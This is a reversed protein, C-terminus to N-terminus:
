KLKYKKNSYEVKFKDLLNMLEEQSHAVHRSKYIFTKGIKGNM